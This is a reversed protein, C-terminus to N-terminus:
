IRVCGPIATACDTEFFVTGAPYYSVTKKHFGRGNNKVMDWGAMRLLKGGARSLDEPVSGVPVPALALLTKGDKALAQTFKQLIRYRCVRQEGGLQLIGDPQLCFPHDSELGALLSVGERLRVHATAYLHGNKVARSTEFKSTDLAIGVRQEYVFLDAAPIIIPQGSSVAVTSNTLRRVTFTFKEGTANLAAENVWCGALPELEQAAPRKIWAPKPVSGCLGLGSEDLRLPKAPQVGLIKGDPCKQPNHEAFWHAPAPFLVSPESGYNLLFLPGLVTFGAQEPHGLFPQQAAIENSHQRYDRPSIGLQTLAASRVAGCITSPMPPFVTRVEHNEGAFMPDAGRFFLTDVPEM